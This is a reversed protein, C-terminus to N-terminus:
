LSSFCESTGKRTLAEVPLPLVLILFIGSHQLKTILDEVDPDFVLKSSQDIEGKYHDFVLLNKGESLLRTIAEIKSPKEDTGLSTGQLIHSLDNSSRAPELILRNYINEISIDETEADSYFAREVFKTRQWWWECHKLLFSKGAEPSGRLVMIRSDLLLLTEMIVIDFDRGVMAHQPEVNPQGHTAIPRHNASSPVAFKLADHCSSDIYVVPIIWDQLEVSDGFRAQRKSDSRLAGRAMAASLPISADSILLNHYFSAMFKSAADVHFKYSCAVVNRIGEQVFAMALNATANASRCSNLSVKQINASVLVNSIESVPLAVLGGTANDLEAFPDDEDVFFLM